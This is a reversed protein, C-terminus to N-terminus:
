RIESNFFEGLGEPANFWEKADARSMPYFYQGSGTKGHGSFTAYVGGASKSYRLDDFVVSDSTNAVLPKARPRRQAM